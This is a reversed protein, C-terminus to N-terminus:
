WPEKILSSILGAQGEVECCGVGEEVTDKKCYVGCGDDVCVEVVVEIYDM